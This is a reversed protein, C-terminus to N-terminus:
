VKWKYSHCGWFWFVTKFKHAKYQLLSQQIIGNIIFAGSNSKYARELYKFGWFKACPWSVFLQEIFIHQSLIATYSM